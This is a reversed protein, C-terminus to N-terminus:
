TGALFSTIDDIVLVRAVSVNAAAATAGASRAQIVSKVFNEENQIDTTEKGYWDDMAASLEDLLADRNTKAPDAM